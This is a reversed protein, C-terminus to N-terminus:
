PGVGRLGMRGERWLLRLVALGAPISAFHTGGGVRAGERTPFETIPIGLKLARIVMQFDFTLDRSSLRMRDFASRSVGRLGNTIDTTRNGGHGFLLNAALAFLLNATKRPRFLQGDEENRAGRMMRSAVVFAHGARLLAALRPLDAPDENGDPHFYVFADTRVHRRAELNAAGLGPEPQAYVRLGFGRLLEVTRDTSHGDVAFCDDFLSLDVRPMVARIGEEENRVIVALTVTKRDGVREDM